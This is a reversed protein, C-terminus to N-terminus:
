SYSGMQILSIFSALVSAIYTTIELFVTPKGIHLSFLQWSVMKGSFYSTTVVELGSM